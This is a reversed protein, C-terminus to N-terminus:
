VRSEQITKALPALLHQALFQAVPVAVADGMAKYADNYSGPIKYNSRAGMLAATEKITLLRAKIKEDKCIVIYQRSSGGQPTRLCGAIGDFRLELVQKGHRIRKYGPFVFRGNQCADTMKNIHRQPILSILRNTEKETFCPADFDVIDELVIRREPPQPIHWWVWDSLGQVARQLNSPHCWQPSIAEFRSTDIGKKVSIVFVRKRSQPVWHSADLVVAGVRYGRSVLEKHLKRYHIGENASILGVVNEAVLLLPASEMEDMVRLWEWVLGSRESSIGGMNGALSLDQCPFSAWSLCAPPLDSGKIDEIPGLRFIDKSHNKCFVM